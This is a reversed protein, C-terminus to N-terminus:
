GLLICFEFFIESYSILIYIFCYLHDHLLKLVFTSPKFIIYLQFYIICVKDLIIGIEEM